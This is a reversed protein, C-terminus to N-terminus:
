DYHRLQPWMDRLDSKPDRCIFLPSNNEYPMCYECQFTGAYEVSSFYNELERASSDIDHDDGFLIVV